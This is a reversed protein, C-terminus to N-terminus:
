HRCNVPLYKNDVTTAVTDCQWHVGNYDATGVMAINGSATMNAVTYTVTATNTTTAFAIASLYRSQNIDTNLNAQTTSAPMFGASMYFETINTKAATAFVMIESIRTRDTYAQYAPIAVTSLIGIIAVVIMLEILTFGQQSVKM